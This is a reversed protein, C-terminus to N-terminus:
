SDAPLVQIMDEARIGLPTRPAYVTRFIEARHLCGALWPPNALMGLQKRRKPEGPYTKEVDISFAIALHLVPKCPTWIRSFINSIEHDISVDLDDVSRANSCRERLRVISKAHDRVVATITAPPPPGAATEAGPGLFLHLRGIDVEEGPRRDAVVLGGPYASRRAMRLMLRIALEAAILRDGIRRWSRDIRNYMQQTPTQLFEPDVRERGFQRAWTKGFLSGLADLTRLRKEAADDEPDALLAFLSSVGICWDPATVPIHLPSQMLEATTAM